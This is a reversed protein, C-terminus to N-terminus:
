TLLYNQHKVAIEGILHMAVGVIVLFSISFSCNRSVICFYRESPCNYLVDINLIRLKTLNRAIPQFEHPVHRFFAPHAKFPM